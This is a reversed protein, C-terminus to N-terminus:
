DPTNSKFIEDLEKRNQKLLEFYLEEVLTKYLASLKLVNSLSPLSRGQEWRSLRNTCRLKLIQAVDKQKYGALRRYKRLRNPINRGPGM